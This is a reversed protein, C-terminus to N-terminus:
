GRPAAGTESELAPLTTELSERCQKSSADQVPLTANMVWCDYDAQARAADDPNSARGRELAALLRTHMATQDSSTPDEPAVDEENSASVAKAAFSEALDGVPGSPEAGFSHALYTYDKFLAQQFTTGEPQASDLQDLDSGLGLESCATLGVLAFAADLQVVVRKKM